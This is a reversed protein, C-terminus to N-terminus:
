RTAFVRQLFADIARTSLQGCLGNFAYDCGHTSWPLEVYTVPKGARRLKDTLMRAHAPSVLEDRAGHVLLTPVASQVFNVPSAQEYTTAIEAPSGGLYNGLVERSNIVRPNAPHDWGWRLDTVGYLSIAGRIAPDSATYATLLALQGGASRGLLAIRNPDIGLLRARTKLFAVASRVDDLAAPFKYEPALRYSIAAVAYGRRVLHWNLKPLQKEDGGRWSGGHIVVVIPPAARGGPKYLDLRQQTNYRFSVPAIRETATGSFLTKLSVGRPVARFLPTLLLAGALAFVVAPIRRRRWFVAAAILALLAFWHGWETALVALQWSKYTPARVVALLSFAFYLLALFYVLVTM